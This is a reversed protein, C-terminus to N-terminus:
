EDDSHAGKDLVEENKRFTIYIIAVFVVTAVYFFIAIPRQFLMSVGGSGMNLAQRLSREAAPGVLYGLIFPGLPIRFKRLVVGLVGFLLLTFVNAVSNDTTYCGLIALVFIIPILYKSKLQSIKAYLPILLRSIGLNFFSAYLVIIFFAYIVVQNRSFMTPGPNIGQMTLAAGILAATASGPIGFALLPIVSAGCTASNGAEPAAVGDLAGKGFQDGEKSISRGIGYSLYCAISSGAGPLIGIFTGIISGIVTCKFTMWYHKWTYKDDKNKKLELVLREKRQGLKYLVKDSYANAYQIILESIAFTGVLVPVSRFGGRFIKIGFTMRSAGSIPDSGIAGILIGLVAALIGKIRSDRNLIAIVVLSFVYLAFFESPGFQIALKGMPITLFVLLISSFFDGTVSSYLAQLMARLPYGKKALPYGDEVTAAAAPTGPVGFSIASISGGFMSGKYIGILLGLSMTPDVKYVFPLLIAIAMDGTLGPIAGVTVGLAVGILAYLVTMPMFASAFAQSLVSGLQM